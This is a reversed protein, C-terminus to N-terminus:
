WCKTAPVVHASGLATNGWTFVQQEDVETRQAELKHEHTHTRTHACIHAHTHTNTRTHRARTRNAVFCCLQGFQLDSLIQKSSPLLKTAPSCTHGAHRWIKNSLPAFSAFSLRSKGVGPQRDM